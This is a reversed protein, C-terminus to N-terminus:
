RHASTRGKVRRAPQKTHLVRAPWDAPVGIVDLYRTFTSIRVDGGAELRSVAPQSTQMREAVEAQTRGLKDRREALARALGRRQLADDVKAEFGPSRSEGEQIRQDLFDPARRTRKTM